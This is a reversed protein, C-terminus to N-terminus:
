GPAATSMAEAIKWNPKRVMGPPSGVGSLVLDKLVQFLHGLFLPQLRVEHEAGADGLRSPVVTTM